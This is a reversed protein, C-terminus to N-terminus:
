CGVLYATILRTILTTFPTMELDTMSAKPRWVPLTVYLRLGVQRLYSLKTLLSTGVLTQLVQCRLRQRRASERVNKQTTWFQQKAQLVWTSLGSLQEGLVIM